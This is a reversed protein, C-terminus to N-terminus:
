GYWIIVLQLQSLILSAAEQNMSLPIEWPIREGHQNTPQNTEVQM